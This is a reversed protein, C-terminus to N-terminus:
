HKACIEKLKIGKGIIVLASGIAYLVSSAVFAFHSENELEANNKVVTEWDHFIPQYDEENIIFRTEGKYYDQKLADNYVLSHIDFLQQNFEYALSRYKASDRSVQNCQIGFAMLLFFLGIIELLQTKFEQSKMILVRYFLM